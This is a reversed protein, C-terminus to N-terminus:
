RGDVGTFGYEAALGALWSPRTRTGTSSTHSSSISVSRSRWSAQAVRRTCAAPERIRSRGARPSHRDDAMVGHGRHRRERDTPRRAGAAGAASRRHGATCRRRGSPDRRHALARPPRNENTGRARRPPGLRRALDGRGLRAPRRCGRHQIRRLEAAGRGDGHGGQEREPRDSDGRIVGPSGRLVGTFGPYM